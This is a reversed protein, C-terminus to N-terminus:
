DFERWEASAKYEPSDTLFALLDANGQPTTRPEIGSAEAEVTTEGVTEELSEEVRGVGIETEDETKQCATLSSIMIMAAISIIMEKKKIM